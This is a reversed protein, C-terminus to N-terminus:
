LNMHEEEYDGLQGELEEIQAKLDKEMSERNIEEREFMMQSRESKEKETELEADLRQVEKELFSHNGKLDDLEVQREELADRLESMEEM